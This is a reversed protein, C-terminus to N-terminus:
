CPFMSTLRCRQWILLSLPNLTGHIKENLWLYCAGAAGLCHSYEHLLFSTNLLGELQRIVAANKSVGGAFFIPFLPEAQNFLTDVINVALGKCLSDCIAELSFGRQQAHILDTKAFVSCRSAIDPIPGQNRAAVESLEEIGSLNLRFAQQDLFSGTGAACSSNSRVSEFNGKEDFKILSFKEAGIFLLSRAESCLVKTARILALQPNFTALMETNLCSAACTAIGSLGSLDLQHTASRLCERIQGKHFLYLTKLIRGSLDMLVLSITVSGIDIGLLTETNLHGAKARLSM